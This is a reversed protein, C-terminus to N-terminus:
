FIVGRLGFQREAVHPWHKKNKTGIIMLTQVNAIGSNQYDKNVMIM